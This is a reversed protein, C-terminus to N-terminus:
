CGRIVRQEPHHVRCAVAKQAPSSHEATFSRLPTYISYQKITDYVHVTNHISYPISRTTDQEIERM